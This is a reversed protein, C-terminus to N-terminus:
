STMVPSSYRWTALSVTLARSSSPAFATAGAKAAEVLVNVIDAIDKAALKEALVAAKGRSGRPRCANGPKTNEALDVTAM